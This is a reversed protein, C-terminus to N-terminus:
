KRISVDPRAHMDNNVNGIPVISMQESACWYYSLSLSPMCMTRFRKHRLQKLM